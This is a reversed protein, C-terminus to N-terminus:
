GYVSEVRYHLHLFGDGSLQKSLSSFALNGPLIERNYYIFVQTKEKALNPVCRRLFLSLQAVTTTSPVKAVRGETGNSEHIIVLMHGEKAKRAIRKREELSMNKVLAYDATTAM